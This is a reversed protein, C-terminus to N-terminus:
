KVTKPAAPEDNGLEEAGRNGTCQFVAKAAAIRVSKSKDQLLRPLFKTLSETGIQGIALAALVKTHELDRENLRDTLNGTLVDLVEPEGTADGLAGLQEAAVLRVRLVDDDLKIILIEKAKESGLAAMSRIGMIRDDAYSSFVTAWLRDQLIREDGLAAIAEAAQFRVKDDSNEDRMAWYLPRLASEDGSKGLLMAANARTTQDKSAIAKGLLGFSQSSGFRKMAYAAAIRINEDQDKLLQEVAGKAPHYRTQGVALIANFVVPVSTDKMLWHVTPMFEIQRTESVVEIAKARVRPDDDALAEQIIGAAKPRLKEVSGPGTTKQLLGNCGFIFVVFSVVACAGFPQTRKHRRTNKVIRKEDQM